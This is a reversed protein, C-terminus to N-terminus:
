NGSEWLLPPLGLIAYHHMRITHSQVQHLQVHGSSLGQFAVDLVGAGCSWLQSHVPASMVDATCVGCRQVEHMQVLVPVFQHLAVALVVVALSDVGLVQGQPLAHHAAALEVVRGRVGRLLLADFHGVGAIAMGVADVLGHRSRM